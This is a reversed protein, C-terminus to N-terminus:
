DFSTARSPSAASTTALPNTLGQYRIRDFMFSASPLRIDSTRLLTRMTELVKHGAAHLHKGNCEVEEREIYTCDIADSDPPRRNM